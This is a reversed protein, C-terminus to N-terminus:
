FVLIDMGPHLFQAAHPARISLALKDILGHLWQLYSEFAQPDKRDKGPVKM